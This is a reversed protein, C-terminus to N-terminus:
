RYVAHKIECCLKFSLRLYASASKELETYNIGKHNQLAILAYLM